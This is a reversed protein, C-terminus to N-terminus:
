LILFLLWQQAAIGHSRSVSLGVKDAWWDLPNNPQTVVPMNFDKYLLKAFKQNTNRFLLSAAVLIAGDM